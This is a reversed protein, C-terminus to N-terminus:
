IKAPLSASSLRSSWLHSSQTAPSPLPSPIPL